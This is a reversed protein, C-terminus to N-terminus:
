DGTLYYPREPPGDNSSPSPGMSDQVAKDAFSTLCSYILLAVAYPIPTFSRKM